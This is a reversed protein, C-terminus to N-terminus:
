ASQNGDKQDIDVIGLIISRATDTLQPWADILRVLSPDDASAAGVAGSTAFRLRTM